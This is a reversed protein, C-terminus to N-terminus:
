RWACVKAGANQWCAGARRLTGLPSHAHSAGIDGNWYGTAEDGGDLLVYAFYAIAGGRYSTAIFSGDGELDIKCPGDIYRKGEVELLCTGDVEAAHAPLCPALAAVAAVLWLRAPTTM